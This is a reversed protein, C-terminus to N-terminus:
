FSGGHAFLTINYANTEHHSPAKLHHDHETSLLHVFVYMFTIWLFLIVIQLGTVETWM